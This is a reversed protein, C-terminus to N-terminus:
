WYINRKDNMEIKIVKDSLVYGKPAAIEKIYYIGYRLNEFLFQEM